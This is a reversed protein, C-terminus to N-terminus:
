ETLCKFTSKKMPGVWRRLVLKGLGLEEGRETVNRIEDLLTFHFHGNLPVVFHQKSMIACNLLSAM